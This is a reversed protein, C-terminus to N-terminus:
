IGGVIPRSGFLNLLIMIPTISFPFASNVNQLKGEKGNDKSKFKFGNRM